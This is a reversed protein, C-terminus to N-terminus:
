VTINLNTSPLLRYLSPSHRRSSVQGHVVGAPTMYTYPTPVGGSEHAAYQAFPGSSSNSPSSPGAPVFSILEPESPSRPISGHAGPPSQSTGGYPSSYSTPYGAPPTPGSSQIEDHKITQQQDIENDDELLIAHPFNPRSRRSSAAMQIAQSLPQLTDIQLPSSPPVPRDTPIPKLSIRHNKWLPASYSPCTLLPFPLRFLIQDSRRRSFTSM